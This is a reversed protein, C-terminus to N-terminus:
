VRRFYINAKNGEVILMNDLKATEALKCIIPVSQADAKLAGYRDGPNDYVAAFETSFKFTWVTQKGTYDKGFEYKSLQQNELAVPQEFTTPQCRLSILQKMTEWNRQQNRATEWEEATNIVIGTVTTIPLLEKKFIGTVGTYTIDLLTYCMTYSLTPAFLDNM